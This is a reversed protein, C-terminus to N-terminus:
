FNVHTKVGVDPQDDTLNAKAIEWGFTIPNASSAWIAAEELSLALMTLAPDDKGGEFWAEVIPSWFQDIKARDETQRLSGSMCAHYDHSKGVVCFHAKAGDGAAKALDSDKRTYFWITSADRDVQPAMPQMHQGFGEVGLMGAHIDDVQDWLQEKPESRAKELDAM